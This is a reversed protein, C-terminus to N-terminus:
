RCCHMDMYIGLSLMTLDPLQTLVGRPGFDDNVSLHWITMLYMQAHWFLNNFPLHSSVQLPSLTSSLKTLSLQPMTIMTRNSSKRYEQEKYSLFSKKHHDPRNLMIVQLFCATTLDVHTPHEVHVHVLM